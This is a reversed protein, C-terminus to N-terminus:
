FESNEELNKKERNGWGMTANSEGKRGKVREGVQVQRLSATRRGLTWVWLALADASLPVCQPRGSGSTRDRSRRQSINGQSLPNNNGSSPILHGATNDNITVVAAGASAVPRQIQLGRPSAVRASVRIPSVRGGSALPPAPIRTDSSGLASTGLSGAWLNPPSKLHNKKKKVNKINEKKM